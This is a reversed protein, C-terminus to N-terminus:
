VRIIGQDFPPQDDNPDPTAHEFQGSQGILNRAYSASTIMSEVTERLTTVSLLSAPVMNWGVAHNNDRNLGITLSRRLWTHLNLTLLQQPAEGGTPAIPGLDIKITVGEIPQETYAFTVLMEDFTLSLRGESDARHETLGLDNCWEEVCGLCYDRRSM